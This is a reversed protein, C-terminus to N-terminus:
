RQYRKLLADLETRPLWRGRLMVGHVRRSSAIDDLPNADLLVLDAELGVRVAGFIRDAAFFRAANVTGTQLAAFPTLGADVLFKLEHHIAFGPVNFVQPSDSGLLLGAGAEHLERLLQQRIAIARRATDADYSPDRLLDNKSQRWQSVTAAPMYRMEPRDALVGADLDPSTVHEFLSETPVNWVGARATDAAIGALKSLDALDAVFVGFFGGLGGSPDENPRLLAEMYGDLHDITAMGSALARQLGVDEPVHGSFPIGVENATMAIAEFEDRTLGPHIKLFDYGAAHQARVMEAASQADRVSQGNFSPGSTYLRPGLTKGAQINKRLELHNPQGLMGRVTTVGNAVYLGLVRDLDPSAVGPVHGHMEALGPMLFRDTGDVVLSGEPLPTSSVEGISAIRGDTVIVTQGAIVTESTMPIVNVNVFATSAAGAPACFGLALIACSLMRM